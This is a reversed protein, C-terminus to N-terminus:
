TFTDTIGDTFTTNPYAEPPIAVNQAGTVLRPGQWTKGGDPSYDVALSYTSRSQRSPFNTISTWVTGSPDVHPLLYTDSASANQSPLVAPPSWDTHSGDRMAKATSVYAHSMKGAFSFTVFMAYITNFNPSSPNSDIAIWQKDPEQGQSDDILVFDPNGNHTTIWDTALKAGAPR